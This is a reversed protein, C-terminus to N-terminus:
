EDEEFMESDLRTKIGEWGSSLRALRDRQADEEAVAEDWRDPDRLADLQDRVLGALVDPELADLEWSEDGHLAIYEVARSDTVKAPNPPPGYEEVQNMNLAMRHFQLDVGFMALRERIDRSMDIGSPDHDGFHLIVPRQGRTQYSVMRQGASYMESQSTYGRCSFYPVDLEHCVREFV